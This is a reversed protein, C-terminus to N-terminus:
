KKGQAARFASMIHEKLPADAPTPGPKTTGQNPVSAGSIMSAAPSPAPPQFKAKAIDMAFRGAGKTAGAERLSKHAERVLDVMQQPQKLIEPIIDLEFGEEFLESAAQQVKGGDFLWENASRFQEYREQVQAQQLMQHAQELKKYEDVFKQYESVTDAQWKELDKLKKELDPLRPDGQGDRLSEYLQQEFKAKDVMDKVKDRMREAWPRVDDPFNSIDEGDWEDWSYTEWPAKPPEASTDGPSSSSDGPSVPPSPKPDSSPPAAPASPPAAPAAAPASAPASPVASPTTSM